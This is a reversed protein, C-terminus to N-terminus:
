IPNSRAQLQPEFILDYFNGFGHKFQASKIYGYTQLFIEIENPGISYQGDAHAELQLYVIIGKSLSDKAGKLVELEHGEVDIKLIDICEIGIEKVIEDITRVAVFKEKLMKDPKTLLVKSKFKFYDSSIDPKQLSSVEDFVCEYFIKDESKEGLAFHHLIVTKSELKRLEDFVTDSPEFAYVLPEKFTSQFFKITQGRNAGVDFIVPSKKIRGAYFKKLKPYFIVKENTWIGGSVIRYWLKVLKHTM